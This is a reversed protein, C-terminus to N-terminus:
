IRIPFCTNHPPAAKGRDRAVVVASNRGLRECRICCGPSHANTPGNTSQLNLPDNAFAVRQEFTLQQAGKQWADALAVVHDIQVDSSTDQGRLFPITTGTYPDDLTGSQVKCAVSNAHVIDRLDRNLMDNRTDCGNRDVDLWAEGFQDRDYGTKPARGKVPLEELLALATTGHEPRDQPAAPDGGAEPVDDRDVPAPDPTPSPSPSTSEPPVSSPSAPEAAGTETQEATAIPVTVDVPPLLASGVM